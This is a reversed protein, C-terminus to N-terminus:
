LLFGQITAIGLINAVGASHELTINTGRDVKIPFRYAQTMQAQQATLTISAIYLINRATGDITVKIQTGTSTSTADKILSLTASTLYFDQDAPVTYITQAAGTNNASVTRILNAPPMVDFVPVVVEDLQDPLEDGKLRWFDSLNKLIGTNYHFAM